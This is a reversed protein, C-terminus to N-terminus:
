RVTSSLEALPWCNLGNENPQPAFIWATCAGGHATCAACCAFQDAVGLANGVRRGAAMDVGHTVNTCSTPRTSLAADGAAAATYSLRLRSTNLQLTAGGPGVTAQTFFPLIAAFRRVFTFTCEDLFPPQEIRVVQESLVTFRLGGHLVVAAPNAVCDAPAAPLVGGGAKAVVACPLLLLLLPLVHAMQM